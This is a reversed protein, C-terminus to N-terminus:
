ILYIISIHTFLCLRRARRGHYSKWKKFVIALTLHQAHISKEDDVVIVGRFSLSLMIIAFFM